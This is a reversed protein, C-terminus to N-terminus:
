FLTHSSSSMVCWVLFVTHRGSRQTDYPIPSRPSLSLADLLLSQKDEPLIQKCLHKPAIAPSVERCGPKYLPHLEGGTILRVAAEQSVWNRDWAM